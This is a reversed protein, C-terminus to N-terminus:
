CGLGPIREEYGVESDYKDVSTTSNLGGVLCLVEGLITPALDTLVFLPFM